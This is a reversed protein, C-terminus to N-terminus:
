AQWHTDGLSKLSYIERQLLHRGYHYMLALAEHLGPRSLRLRHLRDLPQNQASGLLKITGRSLPLVAAQEGQCRSCVISGARGDFGYDRAAGFPQDCRLCSFLNPRYGIQEFFKLQFLVLVTMAPRGTELSQLAWLLLSFLGNDGELDRTAVLTLERLVTAARYLPMSQRLGLFSELLEAEAIFVLNSKKAETYRLSLTSFLELKNVFRKQSRKAGKAIGTMRGIGQCYFTIILDSEGHDHCDLVIAACEKSSESM